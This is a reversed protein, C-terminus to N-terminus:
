RSQELEWVRRRLAILAETKQEPADKAAEIAKAVADPDASLLVMEERLSLDRLIGKEMEDSVNRERTLGVDVPDGGPTRNYIRGGKIDKYGPMSDTYLVYDGTEFPLGDRNKISKGNDLVISEPTIQNVYAEREGYTIACTAPMSVAALMLSLVACGGIFNFDIERLTEM